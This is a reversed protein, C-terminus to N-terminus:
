SYVGHEIRGLLAEVERAGLETDALALPTAQGLSVNPATFWAATDDADDFVRLARDVLAAIRLVHESEDPALEGRGKRRALTTASLGVVAALEAESVRLHRALATFTAVPLGAKVAEILQPTSRALGLDHLLGGAAPIPPRFADM